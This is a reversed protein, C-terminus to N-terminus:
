GAVVGAGGTMRESCGSDARGTFRHKTSNPCGHRSHDLVHSPTPIVQTDLGDHDACLPWQDRCDCSRFSKKRGDSGDTCCILRAISVSTASLLTVLTGRQSLRMLGSRRSGATCCCSTSFVKLLPPCFFLHCLRVVEHLEEQAARVRLRAGRPQLPGHHVDPADGPVCCRRGHFQQGTLTSTNAPRSCRLLHIAIVIM